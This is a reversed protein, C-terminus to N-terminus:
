NAEDSTYNSDTHYNGGKSGARWGYNVAEPLGNGGSVSSYDGQADNGAGGSVSAFQGSASNAYGGSVSGYDGGAINQIGGSVAAYTGSATNSYGGGVWAYFNTVKNGYGGSVSAFNGYAINSRGGSISCFDASLGGPPSQIKNSYGGSIATAVGASLNRTGGTVTAYPGAVANDYGAVLGGYSTYNNADGVILNHSGNRAQSFKSSAVNYGIILNGLGTLAGGDDTRGSGSVIHVNVGSITLDTNSLSFRGLVATQAASLGVGTEGQFGQPGNKGTAGPQGANGQLGTAGIDGKAGATGTEGKPGPVPPRSELASIRAVLSALSTGPTQALIRPLPVNALVSLICAGLGCATSLRARGEARHLRRRLTELEPTHDAPFNTASPTTM